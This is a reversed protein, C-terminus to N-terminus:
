VSLSPFGRSSGAEAKRMYLKWVDRDEDSVILECIRRDSYAWLANLTTDYCLGQVNGMKSDFPADYVVMASLKNIAQISQTQRQLSHPHTLIILYDYAKLTNVNNLIIIFYKVIRDILSTKM